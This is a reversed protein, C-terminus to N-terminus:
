TAVGTAVGFLAEIVPRAEASSRVELATGRRDVTIAFRFFSCCAQEAHVLRILEDIPVGAEFELRIGDDIASRQGVHELLQHWEDLRGTMEPASLSCAIPVEDTTAVAKETLAV